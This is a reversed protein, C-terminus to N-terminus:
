SQKPQADVLLGDSGSHTTKAVLYSLERLLGNSQYLHVASAQPWHCSRRGMVGGGQMRRMTHSAAVPCSISQLSMSVVKLTSTTSRQCSSMERPAHLRTRCLLAAGVTLM